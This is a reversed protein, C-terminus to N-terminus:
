FGCIERMTRVAVASGALGWQAVNVGAQNRIALSDGRAFADFFAVPLPESLVHAADPAFFHMPAQFSQRSGDRFAVEFTVQESQDDIRQLADGQYGGLTAYFGPGLRSNCSGTLRVEGEGSMVGATGDRGSATWEAAQATLAGAGFVALVASAAIGAAARGSPRWSHKQEM